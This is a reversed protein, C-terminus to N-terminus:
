AKEGKEQIYCGMHQKEPLGARKQSVHSNATETTSLSEDTCLDRLLSTSSKRQKLPCGQEKKKKKSVKGHCDNTTEPTSLSVDTRETGTEQGWESIICFYLFQHFYKVM